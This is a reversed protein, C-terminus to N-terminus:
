IWVDMRIENDEKDSLYLDVWELELVQEQDVLLYVVQDVMMIQM